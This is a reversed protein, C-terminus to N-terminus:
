EELMTKAEFEVSYQTFILRLTMFTMLTLYKRKKGLMSWMFHSWSENAFFIAYTFAHLLIIPCVCLMCMCLGFRMASDCNERTTKKKM